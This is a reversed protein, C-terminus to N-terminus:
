ISYCKGRCGHGSQGWQCGKGAGSVGSLSDIFLPKSDDIFGAKLLPALALLTATPYCGPNAVLTAKKIEERYLETLGYVSKKLLILGLIDHVSVM